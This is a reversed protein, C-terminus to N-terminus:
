LRQVFCVLYIKYCFGLCARSALLLFYILVDGDDFSLEWEFDFKKCNTISVSDVAM